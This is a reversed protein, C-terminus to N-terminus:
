DAQYRNGRHRFLASLDPPGDFQPLFIQKGRALFRDESLIAISNTILIIVIEDRSM